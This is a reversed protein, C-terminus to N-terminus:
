GTPMLGQTYLHLSLSTFIFSFSPLPSLTPILPVLINWNQFGGEIAAGAVTVSICSWVKFSRVNKKWGGHGNKGM